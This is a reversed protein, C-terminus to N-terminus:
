TLIIQFLLSILIKILKITSGQVFGVKHCNLQVQQLHMLIGLMVKMHHVQSNDQQLVQM